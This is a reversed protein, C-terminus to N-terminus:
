SLPKSWDASRLEPWKQFFAPPTKHGWDEWDKIAEKPWGKKTQSPLYTKTKSTQDNNGTRYHAIGMLVHNAVPRGFVANQWQAYMRSRRKLRGFGITTWRGEIRDIKQEFGNKHLYRNILNFFAKQKQRVFLSLAPSNKPFRDKKMAFGDPGIRRLPVMIHVHLNRGDGNKNALHIAWDAVYGNRTFNERVFDKVLRVLEEFPLECPLAGVFKHALLADKRRTTRDERAELRRWFEGRDRAWEPADMPAWIEACLVGGRRTFDAVDLASHELKSGSIYAAAAHAKPAGAERRLFNHHFYAIAM